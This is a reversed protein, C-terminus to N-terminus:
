VVPNGHAGLAYERAARLRVTATDLQGQQEFLSDFAKNLIEPTLTM